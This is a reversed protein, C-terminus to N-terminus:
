QTSTFLQSSVSSALVNKRNGHLIAAFGTLCVSAMQFDPALMWGESARNQTQLWLSFYELLCRARPDEGVKNQDEGLCDLFYESGNECPFFHRWAEAELQPSKWSHKWWHRVSTRQFHLLDEEKGSLLQLCHPPTLRCHNHFNSQGQLTGEYHISVNLSDVALSVDRHPGWSCESRGSKLLCIVSEGSPVAKRLPKNLTQQPSLRHPSSSEWIGHSGLPAGWAWFGWFGRDVPGWRQTCHM